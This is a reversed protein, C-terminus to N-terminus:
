VIDLLSVVVGNSKLELHGCKNGGFMPQNSIIALMYEHFITDTEPCNGNFM